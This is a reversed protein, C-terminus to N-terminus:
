KLNETNINKNRWRRSDVTENTNNRTKFEYTLHVQKPYPDVYTNM